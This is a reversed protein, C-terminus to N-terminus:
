SLNQNLDKKLKTTFYLSNQAFYPVFVFKQYKAPSDSDSILNKFILILNGVADKWSSDFIVNTLDCFNISVNIMM